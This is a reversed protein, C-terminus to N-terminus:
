EDHTESVNLTEKAVLLLSPERVVVAGAAITAVDVVAVALVIALARAVVEVPYTSACNTSM